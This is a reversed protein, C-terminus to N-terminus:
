NKRNDSANKKIHITIGAKGTSIEYSNYLNDNIWGCREFKFIIVDRGEFVGHIANTAYDIHPYMIHGMKWSDVFESELEEPLIHIFM